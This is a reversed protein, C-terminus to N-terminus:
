PAPGTFPSNDTHPCVFQAEPADHEQADVADDPRPDEQQGILRHSQDARRAKQDHDKIHKEHQRDGEAEGLRAAKELVVAARIDVRLFREAVEDAILHAEERPHRADDGKGRHAHAEGRRQRADHGPQGIIKHFIHDDRDNETDEGPHVQEAHRQVLHHLIHRGDRLDYREDKEDAHANEEDLRGIERREERVIYVRRAAEARRRDHQEEGERAKFTQGHRRCFHFIRLFIQGPRREDRDERDRGDVDQQQGAGDADHPHLQRVRGSRYLLCEAADGAREARRHHGCPRENGDATEADARGEHRRVAAESQRFLVHERREHRLAVAEARRVPGDDYRRHDGHEDGVRPAEREERGDAHHGTERLIDGRAKRDRDEPLLHGIRGPREADGETRHDWEDRRRDADPKQRLSRRLLEDHAEAGGHHCQGEIIENVTLLHVVVGASAPM